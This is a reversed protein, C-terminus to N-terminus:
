LHMYVARSTDGSIGGVGGRREQLRSIDRPTRSLGLGIQGTEVRVGRIIRSIEGHGKRFQPYKSDSAFREVYQFGGPHNRQGCCWRFDPEAVHDLAQIKVVSLEKRLRGHARKRPHSSPSDASLKTASPQHSPRWITGLKSGLQETAELIFSLDTCRLSENRHCM